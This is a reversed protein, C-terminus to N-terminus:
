FPSNQSFQSKLFTFKTFFSIETFHIKYFNPNEIHSNKSLIHIKAGAHFVANERSFNGNKMIEKLRADAIKFLNWALCTGLM